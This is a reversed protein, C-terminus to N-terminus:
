AYERGAGYYADGLRRNVSGAVVEGDLEWTQNQIADILRDLKGSVADLRGIVDASQGSSGGVDSATIADSFDMDRAVNEIEAQLEGRKSELGVILNDMLDPTWQDTYKLPGVDATTQHLYDSVINAINSVATEVDDAGNGIGAAFNSILHEGWTKSENQLTSLETCTDVVTNIATTVFSNGDGIGTGYQESFDFGWGWAQTTAANIIDNIVQVIANVAEEALYGAGAIGDAFGTAFEFGIEFAQVNSTVVDSLSQLFTEIDLAAQAYGDGMEAAKQASADMAGSSEEIASTTESVKTAAEEASTSLERQATGAEMAATKIGDIASASNNTATTSENLTNNNDRVAETNDKIAATHEETSETTRKRGSIYGNEDLMGEAADTEKEFSGGKGGVGGIHLTSGGNKEHDYGIGKEFGAQLNNGLKSFTTQLDTSNAYGEETFLDALSPLALNGLSVFMGAISDTLKGMLYGAVYPAGDSLADGLADLIEPAAEAIVDASNELGVVLGDLLDVAGQTLEKTSGALNKTIATVVETLSPLTTEAATGLSTGLGSIIGTASNIFDGNTMGSFLSEIIEPGKDTLVDVSSLLAQGLNEMVTGANELMDSDTIGTLLNELIDPGYEALSGSVSVLGDGIADIVTNLSSTLDGSNASITSFLTDIIKPFGESFVDSIQEFAGPLEEVVTSALNPLADVVVGDVLEGAADLLNPLLSDIMGPLESTLIPVVKKVVISVGKLTSQVRPMINNIVGGVRQGNEEVGVLSTVLNDILSDFDATESAMGVLLNSWAAKMSNVSGQITTAAEKATTGTIGLNDQIVGIADIIDSFNDIDYKVGSLEEAKDLLEQMGAKTGSFGLSLNDLTMYSGRALAQYVSTLDQVSYKGFTNANDAIQQMAKDAYEATKTSDQGFDSLLKATFATTSSMYENASMGVTKYANNAYNIVMDSADGLETSYLKKIGGVLQENEAYASVAMKTIAAVGTAAAGMAATGVKVSTSVISGIGSAVTGMASGIGSGISGLRSALSKTQGEVDGIGKDFDSKDVGVKVFLEMVNM